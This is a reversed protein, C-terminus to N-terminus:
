WDLLSLLCLPSRSCAVRVRAHCNHVQRWEADAAQPLYKVRLLLSDSITSYIQQRTLWKRRDFENLKEEAEEVKKLYDKDLVMNFGKALPSCATGLLHWMLGQAEMVVFIQKKYMVWNAGDPALKPITYLNSTASQTTLSMNAPRM